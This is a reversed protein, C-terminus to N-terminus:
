FVNKCNSDTYRWHHKPEYGRVKLSMHLEHDTQAVDNYLNQIEEREPPKIKEKFNGM